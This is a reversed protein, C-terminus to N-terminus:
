HAPAGENIWRTVAALGTVDVQDTGLPPMRHPGPPQSMRDVLGSDAADGPVVRQAPGRHPRSMPVAILSRLIDTSNAMSQRLLLDVERFALGHPNHCHGCNAHLYGLADGAPSPAPAPRDVPHSLWGRAALAALTPQGGPGGLQIASFGLIRAPEGGHCSLCRHSAPVDHDTGHVNDAGQERLVADQGAADWVFTGMWTQGPSDGVQEILRTELRRDGRRFEKWVKTGKPFRWHDIDATNIRAGRPLRIFRTKDAGDSWLEYAPRFPVVDGALARTSPNAYLGTQSLRQPRTTRPPSCAGAALLLLWLAGRNM